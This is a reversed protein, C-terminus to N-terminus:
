EEVAEKELADKIKRYNSQMLSLYTMSSSKLEDKTVSQLSNLMVIDRDKDSSSELVAKALKGDSGEIVYVSKLGLEDLKEALFAVTEFSAESEASCGKFAAYYDLGYDKVFYLFPFRDAFVMTKKAPDEVADFMDQLDMDLKKLEVSYKEYNERYEDSHAEDMECLCDTIEACFLDANKLSLWVHEDYVVGEEEEEEPEMGEKEEEAEKRDGAVDLLRIVKMKSNVPAALADDVWKESEGGTCIFLDCSSIEAMDKTSPQYNHLDAGNALLYTIDFEYSRGGTIQKVWDYEPFATCVVSIKEEDSKKIDVPADAMCGSLMVAAATVAAAAKIMRRMM